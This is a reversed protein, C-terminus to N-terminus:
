LTLSSDNFKVYFLMSIKMQLRKTQSETLITKYSELDNKEEWTDNVKRCYAIYRGMGNEVIPPVYRAVGCLAFTDGKININVPVQDLSSM